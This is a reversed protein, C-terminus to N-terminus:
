CAVADASAAVGNGATQRDVWERLGGVTKAHVQEVERVTQRRTRPPEPRRIVATTRVGAQGRRLGLGAGDDDQTM